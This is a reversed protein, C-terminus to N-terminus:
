HSNVVTWSHCSGTQLGNVSTYVTLHRYRWTIGGQICPKRNPVCQNCTENWLMHAQYSSACRAERMVLTRCRISSTKHLLTEIYIYLVVNLYSRRTRHGMRYHAYTADREVLMHAASRPLKTEPVIMMCWAEKGVWAELPMMIVWFPMPSMHLSSPERGAVMAAMLTIAGM